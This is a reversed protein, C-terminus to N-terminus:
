PKARRRIEQLQKQQEPTLQNKLRVMLQIQARKIEREVALVQDLQALAEQEDVRAQGVLLAMAEVADQLEWQLETFRKQAELVEARIADRQSGELGIARQNGMILEPPFLNKRLPDPGQGRSGPQQGPQPAAVLAVGLFLSTMLLLFKTKM